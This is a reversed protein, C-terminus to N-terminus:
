LNIILKQKKFDYKYVDNNTNNVIYMKTGAPNSAVSLTIKYNNNKKDKKNKAIEKNTM